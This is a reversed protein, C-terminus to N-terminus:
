QKHKREICSACLWRSGNTVKKTKGGALVKFTQCHSCFKRGTLLIATQTMKADDKSRLLLGGNEADMQQEGQALRDGLDVLRGQPGPGGNRLGCDEQGKGLHKYIFHM